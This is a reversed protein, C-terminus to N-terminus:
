PKKRIQIQKADWGLREAVARPYEWGADDDQYLVVKSREAAMAVAQPMDLYRSVNLFIPGNRHTKPLESLELSAINPEFLSAYIAIAALPGHEYIALPVKALDPDQRLAEITRRVDWVQMADLSEGLLYFRRRNQVQKKEGQDWRHRGLGRPSIMILAQYPMEIPGIRSILKEPPFLINNKSPPYDEDKLEEAVRFKLM